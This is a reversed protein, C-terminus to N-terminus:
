SAFKRKKHQRLIFNQDNELGLDQKYAQYITANKAQDKVKLTNLPDAQLKIQSGNEYVSGSPQFKNEIHLNKYVTDPLYRSKGIELIEKPKNIRKEGYTSSGQDQIKKALNEFIQSGFKQRPTSDFSCDMEPQSQDLFGM